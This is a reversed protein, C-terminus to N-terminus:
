FQHAKEQFSKEENDLKEKSKDRIPTLVPTEVAQTPEEFKYEHPVLTQGQKSFINKPITAAEADVISQNKFESPTTTNVM